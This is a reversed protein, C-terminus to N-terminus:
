CRYNSHKNPLKKFLKVKPPKNSPMATPIRTARKVLFTKLLEKNHVLAVKTEPNIPNKKASVTKAFIPYAIEPIIVSIEIPNNRLLKVFDFRLSSHSCM